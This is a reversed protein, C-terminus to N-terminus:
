RCVSVAAIFRILSDMSSFKLLAGSILFGTSIRRILKSSPGSLFRVPLATTDAPPSASVMRNLTFITRLKSFPKLTSHCSTSYSSASMKPRLALLVLGWSCASSFLAFVSIVCTSDVSLATLAMHFLPIGHVDSPDALQLQDPFPNNSCHTFAPQFTRRAASSFHSVKRAFPVTEPRRPRPRSAPRAARAPLSRDMFVQHASDHLRGGHPCHNQLTSMGPLLGPWLAFLEISQIASGASASCCLVGHRLFDCTADKLRIGSAYLPWPSFWAYPPRLPWM